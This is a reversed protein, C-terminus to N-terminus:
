TPNIRKQILLTPTPELNPPREDLSYTKKM